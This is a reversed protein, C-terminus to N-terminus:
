INVEFMKTGNVTGIGGAEAASYTVGAAAGTLVNINYDIYGMNKELYQRNDGAMTKLQDLAKQMKKLLQM